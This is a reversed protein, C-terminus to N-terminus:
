HQSLIEILRHGREGMGKYIEREIVRYIVERFSESKEEKTGLKVVRDIVERRRENV